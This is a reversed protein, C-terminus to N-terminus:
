GKKSAQYYHDRGIEDEYNQRKCYSKGAAPLRCKLLTHKPWASLILFGTKDAVGKDDNFKLDFNGNQGSPSVNERIEFFLTPKTWKALIYYSILSVFQLGL